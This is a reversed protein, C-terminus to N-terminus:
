LLIFLEWRKRMRDEPLFVGEDIQKLDERITDQRQTKMSQMWKVAQEEEDSNIKVKTTDRKKKQSEQDFERQISSTIKLAM